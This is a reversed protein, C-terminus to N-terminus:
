PKVVAACIAISKCHIQLPCIAETRLFNAGTDAVIISDPWRPSWDLQMAKWFFGGTPHTTGNEIGRGDRWCTDDTNNNSGGGGVIAASENTDINWHYITGPGNREMLLATSNSTWRVGRFNYYKEATGSLVTCARPATPTGERLDVIHIGAVDNYNRGDYMLYSAVSELPYVSPKVKPM